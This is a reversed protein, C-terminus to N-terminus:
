AFPGYRRWVYLAFLALVAWAMAVVRRQLRADYAYQRALAEACVGSLVVLPPVATYTLRFVYFGLLWFFGFAAGFMLATAGALQMLPEAPPLPLLPRRQRHQQRIVWGLVLLVVVPVAFHHIGIELTGSFQRSFDELDAVFRAPERYLGKMWTLQRYNSVETNYYAGTVAICVRMWIFTPLAALGGFAALGLAYARTQARGGQWWRWLMLVGVVPVLILFNGYVLMGLGIGLGFLAWRGVRPTPSRLVDLGMALGLVPVTISLVQLHATWYFAKVNENFAVMVTTAWALPPRVGQRMLLWVLLWLTLGFSVVNFLVFAVAYPALPDIDYLWPFVAGLARGGIAGIMVYGPRSQREPLYTLLWWPREAYQCFGPADCSVPLGIYSNIYYYQVICWDRDNRRLQPATLMLLAVGLSLLGARLWLPWRSPQQSAPKPLISHTSRKM